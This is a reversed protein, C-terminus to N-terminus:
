EPKARLSIKKEAKDIVLIALASRVGGETKLRKYRDPFKDVLLKGLRSKRYEDHERALALVDTLLQNDDRSIPRGRNGERYHVNTFETLLEHWHFPDQPDLNAERFARAVPDFDPHDPPLEPADSIFDAIMQFIEGVEHPPTQRDFLPEPDRVDPAQALDRIKQNTRSRYPKPPMLSAFANNLDSFRM